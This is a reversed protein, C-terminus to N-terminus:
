SLAEKRIWRAKYDRANYTECRPWWLVARGMKSSFSDQDWWSIQSQCGVRCSEVLGLFKRPCHWPLRYPWRQLVTKRQQLRQISEGSARDKRRSSSHSSEERRRRSSNPYKESLYVVEMWISNLWFMNYSKILILSIYYTYYSVYVFHRIEKLM